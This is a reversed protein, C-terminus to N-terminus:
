SRQLEAASHFSSSVWSMADKWMRTCMRANSWFLQQQCLSYIWPYFFFFRNFQDNEQTRSNRPSKLGWTANVISAFTTREHRHTAHCNWVNMQKGAALESILLQFVVQRFPTSTLFGYTTIWKVSFHLTSARYSPKPNSFKSGRSLLPIKLQM